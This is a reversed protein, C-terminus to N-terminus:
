NKTSIITELRLERAVEADQHAGVANRDAGPSDAGVAEFVFEPETGM